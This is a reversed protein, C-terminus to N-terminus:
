IPAKSPPLYLAGGIANSSAGSVKAMFNPQAHIRLVACYAILVAEKYDIITEDPVFVTTKKGSLKEQLTKILFKNKAGGGTVYLSSNDRSITKSIQNSIFEIVTRLIDETSLKYSEVLKIVKDRVWSNDISKPPAQIYFGDASLQHLLDSSINGQSSLIGDKDYEMGVKSSFHNLVQNCPCIDYAIWQGNKDESINVIGGLNLYYDHGAFLDRDAIVAMPTGQGGLAMDQNRFDSVVPLECKAAVMGGNLLQWSTEIEPLHLITHGHIGIVDVKKDATIFEILCDSIFNSFSSETHALEIARQHTSSRLSIKLAEPLQYTKAKQIGWKKDQFGVLAIDVGDLSSGSM